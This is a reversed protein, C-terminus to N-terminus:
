LLSQHKTHCEAQQRAIEAWHLAYLLCADYFTSMSYEACHMLLHVFADTLVCILQQKTWHEPSEALQSCVFPCQQLSASIVTFLADSCDGHSDIDMAESPTGRAGAIPQTMAQDDAANAAAGQGSLFADAAHSAQASPAQQVSASSGAGAHLQPQSAAQLPVVRTLDHSVAVTLAQSSQEAVSDAPVPGAPQTVHEPRVSKVQPQRVTQTGSALQHMGSLHAGELAAANGTQPAAAQPPHSIVTASGQQPAMSAFPASGTQMAPLQQAHVSSTQSQSLGSTQTPLYAQGQAHQTLLPLSQPAATFAPPASATPHASLPTPPTPSRKARKNSAPKHGRSGVGVPNAPWAVQVEAGEAM